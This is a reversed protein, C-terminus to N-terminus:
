NKNLFLLPLQDSIDNSFWANSCKRILENRLTLGHSKTPYRYSNVAIRAYVYLMFSFPFRVDIIPFVTSWQDQLYEESM